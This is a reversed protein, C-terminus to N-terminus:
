RERMSEDPSDGKYMDLRRITIADSSMPKASLVRRGKATAM